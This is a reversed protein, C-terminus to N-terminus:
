WRPPPEDTNAVLGSCRHKRSACVAVCCRWIPRRINSDFFLQAITGPLEYTVSGSIRYAGVTLRDPSVVSSPVAVPIQFVQTGHGPITAEPSRRATAVQAGDVAMTYGIEWLPLPEKNTNTGEILVDLITADPTADSLYIDVVRFTPPRTSCSVMGVACVAACLLFVPQRVRVVISSM